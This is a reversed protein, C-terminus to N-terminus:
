KKFGGFNFSKQGRVKTIKTSKMQTPPMKQRLIRPVNSKSSFYSPTRQLSIKVQFFM